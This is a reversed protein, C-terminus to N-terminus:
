PRGMQGPKCAVCPLLPELFFVSGVLSLPLWAGIVRRRRRRRGRVFVVIEETLDKETERRLGGGKGAGGGDALPPSADGDVGFEDGAEAGVVPLRGEEADELAAIVADHEGGDQGRGVADRGLAEVQSDAADVVVGVQPWLQEPAAVAADEYEVPNTPLDKHAIGDRALLAAHSNRRLEFHAVVLVVHVAAAVGAGELHDQHEHADVVKLGERTGVGGLGVCPAM